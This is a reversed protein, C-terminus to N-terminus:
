KADLRKKAQEQLAKVAPQDPLLSLSKEILPLAKDPRGVALYCEAALNLVPIETAGAMLKELYTLASNWDKLGAYDLAIVKASERDGTRENAAVAHALSEKFLGLGFLSKALLLRAEADDRLRLIAEFADRAKAYDGSLFYQSGLAKLHEPGPFPGHLRAYVWPLVPVARDLVVFNEKESLLPTGDAARASIEARYYGPKIDKLSVTGSVLLTTPDAPDPAVETLPFRGASDNTDASVLDVVFSPAADLNWAQIFVGLTGSTTFENRAGVLYQRGCFVFAKLNRREAEPVTERAQFLLPASLGPRGAAISAPPVLPTEFSSFDRATKNKLLFLAKHEGPVVALLDQFAFRQREHARYQDPTLKLPVEEVKEFLLRGGPDELRLILEFTAAVFNGQAAFNMKDPEITWHVFPQGAQRFVKVQFASNLFTDTYDTEIYDKYRLYSRAYADSYKKQPVQRISAVVLDSSASGLGYSSEGPIYSQAAAAMESNLNKMIRLAGARTESEGYVRTVVLREPGDVGPSYLRYDGIGQPQYFILYFFAPLGYEEEGKYFWLELPWVDSETTFLKRELPPGLVLYIQGRETRSGRKPSDHGFTQDAFRIREEYEKQFENVSTDPAPDRSKWFFRVFTEREANTALRLFVERETKTIIPSVDELWLGLAPSLKEPAAPLPGAVLVALVVLFVVRRPSM